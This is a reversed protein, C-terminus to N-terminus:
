SVDFNPNCMMTSILLMTDGTVESQSNIIADNDIQSGLSVIPTIEKLAETNQDLAARHLNNLGFEDFDSM